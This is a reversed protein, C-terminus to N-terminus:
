FSISFMDEGCCSSIAGVFFRGADAAPCKAAGGGLPVTHGPGTIPHSWGFISQTFPVAELLARDWCHLM